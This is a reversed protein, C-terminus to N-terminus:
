EGQFFGTEDTYVAKRTVHDMVSLVSLPIDLPIKYAFYIEHLKDSLFDDAAQKADLPDKAEIVFTKTPFRRNGLEIYFLTGMNKV